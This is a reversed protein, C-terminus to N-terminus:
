ESWNGDYLYTKIPQVLTTHIVHNEDESKVTVYSTYKRVSGDEKYVTRIFVLIDGENISYCENNDLSIVLENDREILDTVHLQYIGDTPTTRCIKINDM